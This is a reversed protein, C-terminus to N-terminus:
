RAKMMEREPKSTRSQEILDALTRALVDVQYPKSIVARFGHDRPNAMIPDNSYGSAVIGVAAPDIELIRAMAERGGLGGPVTLDMVVVDFCEGATFHEAYREVAEEGSSAETVQFGYRILLDVTVKRVLVEDEMLLVRGEGTLSLPQSDTKPAVKKSSSPLLVSFTSGYGLRSRVTLLGDHRRVISFASSLGLGTGTEKTSFYPDFIRALDHKSIGPGNDEINIRVYSGPELSPAPDIVNEGTVQVSGGDPMADGANIFLNSFVQHMQGADVEVTALDTPLDVDCSVNSGSLSLTAADKVLEGILAPERIPAGGRSFTLLQQTLDSARSVAKRAEKYASLKRDRADMGLVTINGLIITLLNNFDHAIGGALLGISELREVRAQEEERREKETVDRFALVAGVRSDDGTQMPAGVVELYLQRGDEVELRADVVTGEASPRLLRELPRLQSSRRDPKLDFVEEVLRGRAEEESIGLISEAAPNLMAVRRWPDLSIVGEALSGVTTRYQEETARLETWRRQLESELRKAYSRQSLAAQAGFLFLALVVAALIPFWARNYLPRAVTIRESRLVDSWEGGPAAAQLELQYSGAGLNAYVVQRSTDPYAESWESELGVLRRRLLIRGDRAASLGSFRFVVTGLDPPLDIPEDLALSRGDAEISELTLRPPLPPRDYEPFYISLGMDSGVWVRGREDIWVAARNTEQGNFGNSPDFRRLRRGDFLAVGRATGLWIRAEADEALFYIPFGQLSENGPEIRDGRVVSVGSSGGLWIEGNSRELVHWFQNTPLDSSSLVDITGDVVRVVGRSMSAAYITRGDGSVQVRRFGSYQQDLALREFVASGGARFFLGSRSAVWVTGRDDEDFSYVSGAREAALLTDLTGDARLRAFGARGAAVLLEGTSVQGVEFVRDVGGIAHSRRVETGSPGTALVTLGGPHGLLMDGNAMRSVATVENELLGEARGYNEFSTGVVRSLGATSGAWLTGLSDRLLSNVADSALGNDVGLWERRGDTNSRLLATRSGFYLDGHRDLAAVFPPQWGGTPPAEFRHRALEVEASPEPISDLRAFWRDGVVWLEGSAAESVIALIAEDGLAEVRELDAGAAPLLFMGGDTAILLGAPSSVLANVRGWDLEGGLRELSQGEGILLGGSELGIVLRIGAESELIQLATPVGDLVAVRTWQGDWGNMVTIRSGNGAVTWLTSRHDWALFRQNRPSGELMRWAVGDFSAVGGRTAAWLTGSSDEVLDNVFSSPLGETVGFTHVAYQQAPALDAGLWLFLAVVVACSRVFGAAPGRCSGCLCHLRARSM